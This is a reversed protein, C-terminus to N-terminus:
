SSNPFLREKHPLRPRVCLEHALPQCDWQRAATLSQCSFASFIRTPFWCNQLLNQHKAATAESAWTFRCRKQPQIMYALWALQPFAAERSSKWTNPTTEAESLPQYQIKYTATLSATLYIRSNLNRGYICGGESGLCIIIFGWIEASISLRSNLGDMMQSM